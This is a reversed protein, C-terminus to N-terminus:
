PLQIEEDKSLIRMGENTIQASSVKVSNNKDFYDKIKPALTSTFNITPATAVVNKMDNSLKSEDVEMTYGGKVDKTLVNALINAVNSKINKAYEDVDLKNLPNLRSMKTIGGNADFIPVDKYYAMYPMILSSQMSQKAEDFTNFVNGFSDTFRTKFLGPNFYSSVADNYSSTTVGGSTLYALSLRNVDYNPLLQKNLLGSDYNSYSSGLDGMVRQEEISLNKNDILYKIVDETKSFTKNDYVIQEQKEGNKNTVQMSIVSLGVVASAVPLTTKIFTKINKRSIKPKKM